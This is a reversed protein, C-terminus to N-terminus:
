MAPAKPEWGPYLREGARLAAVVEDMRAAVEATMGEPGRGMEVAALLSENRGELDARTQRMRESVAGVKVPDIEGRALEVIEDDDALSFREKLYRINMEMQSPEEVEARRAQSAPASVPPPPLMYGAVALGLLGLTTRNFAVSAFKSLSTMTTTEQEM